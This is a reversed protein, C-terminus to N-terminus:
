LRLALPLKMTEYTNRHHDIVVTRCQKKDRKYLADVIAQHERITDFSEYPTERFDDYVLLHINSLLLSEKIGKEIFKNRSASVYGMHFDINNDLFADFDKRKIIAKSEEVIKTLKQIEEDTITECALEIAYAELLILTEYTDRVEKPSPNAVFAGKNPQLVVIGEYALTALASRVPTRSLGTQEVIQAEVIQAGPLLVQAAIQRRIYHYAKDKLSM